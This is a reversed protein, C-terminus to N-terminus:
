TSIERLSRLVRILLITMGYYTSRIPGHYMKDFEDLTVGEPWMPYQHRHAVLSEVRSEVLKLTEAFRNHSLAVFIDPQPM